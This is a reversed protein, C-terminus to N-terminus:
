KCHEKLFQMIKKNDEIKSRRHVVDQKTPHDRLAKEIGALRDSIETFISNLGSLQEVIDKTTTTM